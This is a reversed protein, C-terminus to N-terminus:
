SDGLGDTGVALLIGKTLDEAVVKEVSDRNRQPTGRVGGPSEEVIALPGQNRGLNPGVETELLGASVVEVKDYDVSYPYAKLHGRRTKRKAEATWKKKGKGAAVALAKEVNRGAKAPADEILVALDDLESFDFTVGSM